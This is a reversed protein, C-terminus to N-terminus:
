DDSGEGTRYSEAKADAARTLAREKDLKATSEEMGRSLDFGPTGKPMASMFFDVANSRGKKSDTLNKHAQVLNSVTGIDLREQDLVNKVFTGAVLPDRAYAPNFRYLTNFAKETMNPDAEHLHPNEELMTKYAQSKHLSDKVAHLAGRGAETGLGLAGGLAASGALFPALDHAHAFAHGFFGADPKLKQVASEWGAIKEMAEKYLTPNRECEALFDHVNRGIREVQEATLHGEAALKETLKM